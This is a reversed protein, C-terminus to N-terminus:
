PAKLGLSRQFAQSPLLEAIMEETEEIDRICRRYVQMWVAKDRTLGQMAQRKAADRAQRLSALRILLKTINHSRSYRM